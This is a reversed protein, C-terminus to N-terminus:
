FLKNLILELTDFRSVGDDNWGVEIDHHNSTMTAANFQVFFTIFLKMNNEMPFRRDAAYRPHWL